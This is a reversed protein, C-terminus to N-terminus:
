DTLGREVSVMIEPWLPRDQLIFVTPEQVWKQSEQSFPVELECVPPFAGKSLEEVKQRQGM